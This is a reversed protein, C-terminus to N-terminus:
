QKRHTIWNLLNTRFGDVTGHLGRIKLRSHGANLSLKSVIHARKLRRSKEGSFPGTTAGVTETITTQAYGLAGNVVCLQATKRLNESGNQLNINFLYTSEVTHTFYGGARLVTYKVNYTDV